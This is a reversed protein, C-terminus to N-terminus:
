RSKLFFEDEVIHTVGPVAGRVEGGYVENSLLLNLLLIKLLYWYYTLFSNSLKIKCELNYEIYRCSHEAYFCFEVFTTEKTKDM